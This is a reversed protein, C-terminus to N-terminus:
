ATLAVQARRRTRRMAGGVAGFGLIMMAWTAPEPVGASDALLTFRASIPSAGGKIAFVSNEPTISFSGGNGFTYTQPGDWNIRGFGSGFLQFIGRTTGTIPSGSAGGPSLFSFSASIAYPTTDEFLNVYSELSGLNFIVATQSSATPTLPDLDLTFPGFAVPTANVVLGPDSTHLSISSVSGEFTTAALAPSAAVM